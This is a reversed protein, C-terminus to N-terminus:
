NEEHSSEKPITFIFKDVDESAHSQYLIKNAIEEKFDKSLIERKFLEYDMLVSVFDEEFLEFPPKPMQYSMHETPIVWQISDDGSQRRIVEVWYDEIDQWRNRVDQRGQNKVTELGDESIYCAFISKDKHPKGATFIFISTTVGENFTKEPLKIIKDLSHKKLLKKGGHKELKKDPLIFACKTGAPVGELVNTVIKMCGYKEEFPPNMLIKKIGISKIWKSAEESRTDLQRLNTKGDKHILMNACALAFIERDFEIGYLQTKQIETAKHTNVGGAEKIMNCMSKVLFAGSGCAFDGVMDNKDVEILRYMLSTIHDPTFVQGHESKKKYRNFENFFIGMVDEGNWFDSNINDSIQSVWDIFNDIAEQNETSNMKIESYVDLLIDIKQNQKREEELSKALTSHISTHFTQYNMGAVLSAGYRKAVLACATFIMRHYLNKIGFDIHLSDNIRKTLLYIMGKNIRDQSFLGLYYEKNQLESEGERRLGNLFVMIDDGNYLIGVVNKYKTRAIKCNKLLEDIHAQKLLTSTSKTELIIAPLFPKSPLYWGDPRDKIGSFGLSNFSTIQGVGSKADSSDTFGLIQGAQDRVKDETM